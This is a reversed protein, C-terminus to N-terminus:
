EFVCNEFSNIAYFQLLNGHHHRPRPLGVYGDCLMYHVEVHQFCCIIVQVLLYCCVSKLFSCLKHKLVCFKM